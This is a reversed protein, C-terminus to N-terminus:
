HLESQTESYDDMNNRKDKERIKGKKIQFGNKDAKELLKEYM